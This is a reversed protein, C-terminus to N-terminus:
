RSQFAASADLPVAELERTYIGYTLSLFHSDNFRVPNSPTGLLVLRGTQNDYSASEGTFVYPLPAQNIECYINGQASLKNVPLKLKEQGPTQTNQVEDVMTFTMTQATLSIHGEINKIKEPTIPMTMENLPIHDITVDDHFTAESAKQHFKMATKFALLTYGAQNQSLDNSVLGVIDVEPNEKLNKDSAALQYVDMWGPGTGEMIEDAYDLQALQMRSQRVLTDSRDYEKMIVAVDPGFATLHDFRNKIDGALLPNDTTDSSPTEKLRVLLEPCSLTTQTRQTEDSADLHTVTVNFLRINHSDGQYIAEKKWAIDLTAPKELKRGTFDMDTQVSLQGSGIISINKNTGDAVIRPGRLFRFPTNPDAGEIVSVEAPTGTVTWNKAQPNGVAETGRICIGDQKLMVSMPKNKSSVHVDDPQNAMAKMAKLFDDFGAAPAQAADNVMPADPEAFTINVTDDTDVTTNPDDFYVGNELIIKQLSPLSGGTDSDPLTFSAALKGADLKFPMNNENGSSKLDTLVLMKIRPMEKKDTDDPKAASADDPSPTLPPYFYATGGSATLTGNPDTITLGNAFDLQRIASFSTTSTTQPDFTLYVPGAYDIDTAKAAAAPQATEQNLEQSTSIIRGPGTLVAQGSRRDLTLRKTERLWTAQDFALSVPHATSAIMELTRQQNEKEDTLTVTPASAMLQDDQFLEVPNGSARFSLRPSTRVSSLESTIRLSGDATIQIWQLQAPTEPSTTEAPTTVTDAGGDDSKDADPFKSDELLTSNLDIEIDDAILRERPSVIRINQSLALRYNVQEDKEPKTPETASSSEASSPSKNKGVDSSEATQEDLLHAAILLEDIRRIEMEQIRRNVQDFILRELDNGHLIVEGSTIELPGTSSLSSREQDFAVNDLAITMRAPPLIDSNSEGPLPPEAASPALAFALIQVHGKLDGRQPMQTEGASESLPVVAEDATVQFIWGSRDYFRAWPQVLIFAGNDSKGRRAFGFRWSIFNDKPDRPGVFEPNKTEYIELGQVSIGSIGPDTTSAMDPPPPAAQRPGATGRTLWYVGGFAALAIALAGFLLLLRKVM